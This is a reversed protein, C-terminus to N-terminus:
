EYLLCRVTHNEGLQTVKPVTTRCVDMAQTCRPHFTCGEPRRYPSPVMGEIPDLEDRKIAIKPISRLLAQTYPHKPAHFVTVVDSYEVIRGLYM